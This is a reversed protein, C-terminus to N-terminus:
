GQVAQLAARVAAANTPFSLIGAAKLQEEQGKLSQPDGKAGCIHALVLPGGDKANAAARGKTVAAVLDKAPDPNSGYGIVIDFLVVKTDPATMAEIIREQRLSSDIMPHPRGQTFEDEGLDIAYHSACKDSSSLKLNKDLAINSFVEVKGDLLLIAEYCLTGGSYLARLYQRQPDLVACKEAFEVPLEDSTASKGLAAFAAEELSTVVKLSDTDEYAVNKGLLCAVVPIGCNKAEDMIRKMTAPAGPKSILVMSKTEPDEALKKIAFSMMAGDVGAKLDRGGVGIAHTVGGGLQDILCTVEQIGTGSAGVIGIPGKKIVNAFALPIGNLIATGCDPGMLLLDKEIAMSKLEVEDEISINDSFLMVNLGKELAAVVDLKAFQGPISFLALNADPMQAVAEAVSEPNKETRGQTSGSDDMLRDIETLAASCSEDTDGEISVILDNPTAALVDDNLQGLGQLVKKNGDTGLLAQATRIGDLKSAERSITMLRVSDKYQNKRVIIKVPM